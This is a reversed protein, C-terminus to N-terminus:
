IAKFEISRSKFFEKLAYADETTLLVEIRVLMREPTSDASQVPESPTVAQENPEAPAIVRQEEKIEQAKREEEAKRSEEAAKKKAEADAKAKTIEAMRQAEKIAKNIDLTQKYVETAEFGFEPLNHLTLVDDGIQYMRSRMQEEISKMSVSANLWKPDWIKELTVFNQFGITAFLEEIANQKNAKKQDEFEKVQKDIVAIPKDIIGIIENVQAKFENFPQMYEKERRIREDNLTKKLKNLTARDAKADKVQDDTYVLTEYFAVKETLEAKLEEYNFSIKEPMAVENVRLEM